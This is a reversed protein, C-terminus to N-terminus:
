DKMRRPLGREADGCDGSIECAPPSAVTRLPFGKAMSPRAPTRNLGKPRWLREAALETVAKGAVRSVIWGLVGFGISRRTTSHMGMSEM